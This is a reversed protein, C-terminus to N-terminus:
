DAARHRRRSRCGALAAAATMALLLSSPEPVGAGGVLSGLTISGAGVVNLASRLLFFDAINTVGDFNLDGKRWSNVDGIPQQYLWGAVFATVDDSALPGSGNGSVIGDLNVDGLMRVMLFDSSNVVGDQNLDGKKWSTIDGDAQQYLWGAQMASLDDTSTSGTGNGSIVGDLNVDGILSYNPHSDIISMIQSRYFPLDAFTTYNGYVAYSTKQNDVLYYIANVIGVLEWQGNRKYFVASGSDGSVAQAENTLASSGPADFRTVMSMIDRQGVGLQLQLPFHLDNDNGGLLCGSACDEDAIRNTGWRKVDDDPVITKYGVQSGGSAVETWIDNNPGNVPTVTWQSQQQLRTPGAGIIVVDRQAIPTSETLLQTPISFDPTGPDGNIRILRLDTDATTLGAVGIPNPVVYAQNPIVSYSNGGFDLTESGGPVGVHYASLAWGDGLYVYPRDGSGTVFDWGPDDAPAVTTGTMNEVVLAIAPAPCNIVCVAVLSCRWAWRITLKDLTALQM